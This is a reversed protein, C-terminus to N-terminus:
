RTKPDVCYDRKRSDKTGVCGRVTSQDSNDCVLDGICHYDHDCDGECRGMARDVSWGHWVLQGKPDPRHSPRDKTRCLPRRKWSCTLDHWKKDSQNLVVCKENRNGPQNKAWNTYRWTTGDTWEFRSLDTHSRVGGIWYGGMGVMKDVALRHEEDNHISALEWKEKKANNTGVDKYEYCYANAEKWSLEEPGAHFLDRSLDDYGNVTSVAFLLSIVVAIMSVFSM